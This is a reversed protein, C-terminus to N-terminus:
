KKRAKEYLKIFDDPTTSAVLKGIVDLPLDDAKRFRICSKGMDLKKGAKQFGARLAKEQVPDSYATMLYLANYNKQAALGVYALPQKNYTDPYKDLPICYAIMGFGVTETYGKPMNKRLVNRVEALPERRDAPLEALYEEVTAAKSQVM